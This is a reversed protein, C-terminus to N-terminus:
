SLAFASTPGTPGATAAPWVRFFAVKLEGILPSEPPDPLLRNIGTAFADCFRYGIRSAVERSVRHRAQQVSPADMTAMDGAVFLTVAAVWGQRDRHGADLGDEVLAPMSFHELLVDVVTEGVGVVPNALLLQLTQPTLM